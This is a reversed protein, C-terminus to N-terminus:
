ERRQFGNQNDWHDLCRWQLRSEKVTEVKREGCIKCIKHGENAIRSIAAQIHDPVPKLIPRSGRIKKIIGDPGPVPTSEVYVTLQGFKEKIQFFRLQQLENENWEEILEVMEDILPEWAPILCPPYYFLHPKEETYKIRMRELISKFNNQLQITM